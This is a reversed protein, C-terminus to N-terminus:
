LFSKLLFDLVNVYNDALGYRMPDAVLWFRLNPPQDPAQELLSVACGFSQNCDSIPSSDASQLTVNDIGALCQRCSDLSAASAFDLQVSAAFGHFLPVNASQLAVPYTSNGLNHRIDDVLAPNTPEPILNFAIQQAYVQPEIARSNLLSVTQSALEDIGAKGRFEASRLLTVQLRSITALKDLAILTPLLCALEASVLRLRTESYALTPENGAGAFIASQPGAIAHSILLCGQQLAAAELESDAQTLLLLSTEALDYRQQDLLTLYRGSYAIRKGANSEQDLLVLSDPLIGTEPLKELIAEAVNGSSHSIAIRHTM